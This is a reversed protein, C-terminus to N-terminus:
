GLLHNELRTKLRLKEEECMSLKSELENLYALRMELNMDKKNLEVIRSRLSDAESQQQVYEKQLMSYKERITIESLLLQELEKEREASAALQKQLLELQNQLSHLNQLGTEYDSQLEAWRAREESSEKLKNTTSELLQRTNDLENELKEKVENEEYYMEKWDEEDEQIKSIPKDPAASMNLDELAKIRQQLKTFQIEYFTSSNEVFQVKNKLVKITDNQTTSKEPLAPNKFSGLFYRKDAPLFEYSSVIMRYAFIICGILIILSIVWWLWM